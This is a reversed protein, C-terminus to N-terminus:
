AAPPSSGRLAEDSEEAPRDIFLDQQREKPKVGIREWVRCGHCMGREDVDRRRCPRGCGDCIWDYVANASLAPM